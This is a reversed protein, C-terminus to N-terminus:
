LCLFITIVLYVPSQNFLIFLCYLSSDHISLFWSTCHDSTVYLIFHKPTAVQFSLIYCFLFFCVVSFRTLQVSIFLRSSSYDNEM